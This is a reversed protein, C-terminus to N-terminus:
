KKKRKILMDIVNEYSYLSSKQELPDQSLGTIKLFYNQLKLTRVRYGFGKLTNALPKLRYRCDEVTVEPVASFNFACITLPSKIWIDDATPEPRKTIM